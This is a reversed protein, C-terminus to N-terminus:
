MMMKRSSKGGMMKRMKKPKRASKGKRSASRAKMM